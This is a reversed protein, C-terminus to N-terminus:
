GKFRDIGETGIAVEGNKISWGIHYYLLSETYVWSRLKGSLPAATCTTNTRRITPILSLQV